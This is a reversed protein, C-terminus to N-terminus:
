HGQCLNTPQFPLYPTEYRASVDYRGSLYQSALYQRQQESYFHQTAELEIAEGDGVCIFYGDDMSQFAVSSEDVLGYRDTMKRSRWIDKFTGREFRKLNRWQIFMYTDQSPISPIDDLTENPSKCTDFLVVANNEVRFPLRDEDQIYSDVNRKFWSDGEPSLYFSPSKLYSGFDDTKNADVIEYVPNDHLADYSASYDFEIKFLFDEMEPKTLSTFAKDVSAKLKEISKPHTLYIPILGHGAFDLKSPAIVTNPPPVSGIGTFNLGNIVLDSTSLIYDSDPSLTPSAPALHVVRINDASYGYQSTVHKYSENVWLNGQSHAIYILKKGKWTLSDNLLHHKMRTQSTEPADVLSALEKLFTTITANIAESTFDLVFGAFWAFTASIKKIIASNQRSSMIDWFAEWRDFQKQELESTRQDFTEAFDALVNLGSGEIYSDNYFLQYEVSEGNYHSIGLTAKIKKQGRKAQEKTTAVGNFFGITYGEIKCSNAIANFPLLVVLIFLITQRNM